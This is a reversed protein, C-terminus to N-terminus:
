RGGAWRGSLRGLADVIRDESLSTPARGSEPGLLVLDMALSEGALVFRWRHPTGAVLAAGRDDLVRGARWLEGGPLAFGAWEPLSPLVDVSRRVILTAEESHGILAVDPQSVLLSSLPTLTAGGPADAYRFSSLMTTVGLLDPAPGGFWTTAEHHPGALVLASDSRDRAEYVIADYGRMPQRRESAGPMVHTPIARHQGLPALFFQRSMRPGAFRTTGFWRFEGFEEPVELEVPAGSPAILSVARSTAAVM